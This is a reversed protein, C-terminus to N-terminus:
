YLQPARTNLSKKKKKSEKITRSVQSTSARAAAIIQFFMDKPLLFDAIILFM